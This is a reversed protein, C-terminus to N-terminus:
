VPGQLRITQSFAFRDTRCFLNSFVASPSGPFDLTRCVRIVPVGPALGLRGAKESDPEVITFAQRGSEPSLGYRDRVLRSLSQDVLDMRDLGPFLVPDMFIEELLVPTQDVRSIRTLCCAKRSHFPNEGPDEVRRIEPRDPWTMEPRIGSTSFAQSTGALSFIDVPEPPQRVYTGSGRRREILGIRVLSDMAQRVTPRGISFDKTIGTEPPLRDGPVWRGSQIRHTFIQALQHYLPVPSDPNLRNNELPLGNM